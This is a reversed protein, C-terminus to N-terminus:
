KSLESSKTVREVATGGIQIPSHVRPPWRCDVNIALINEHCWLELNEVETRYATDDDDTILGILTTDDAFKIIVQHSRFLVM